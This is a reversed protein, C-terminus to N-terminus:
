SSAACQRRRRGPSAPASVSSIIGSRRWRQSAPCARRRTSSRWSSATGRRRAAAVPGRIQELAEADRGPQQGLDHLRSAREPRERRLGGVLGAEAPRRTTATAVCSVAEATAAMGNRAGAGRVDAGSRTARRRRPSRAASRRGCRRPSGSWRPRRRPCKRSSRLTVPSQSSWSHRRAHALSPSAYENSSSTASASRRRRRQLRQDLRVVRRRPAPRCAAACGRSRRACRGSLRALGARDRAADELAQRQLVGLRRSGRLRSRPRASRSGCPRRRPGCRAARGSSRRRRRAQGHEGPRLLRRHEPVQEHLRDRQALDARDGLSALDDRFDNSAVTCSGGDGAQSSARWRKASSPRWARPPARMVSTPMRPPM